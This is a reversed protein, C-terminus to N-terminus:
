FNIGFYEFVLSLSIKFFVFFFKLDGPLFILPADNLNEKGTTMPLANERNKFFAGRHSKKLYWKMRM